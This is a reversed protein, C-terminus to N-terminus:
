ENFFFDDFFQDDTTNEDSISGIIKDINPNVVVDEIITKEELPQKQEEVKNEIVLQEEIASVPIVPIGNQKENKEEEELEAIKADIKKILDDVNFSDNDFMNMSKPSEMFDRRPPMFNPMNLNGGMGMPNVGMGMSNGGMPDDLVEFLKSRKKEKVFERLDFYHISTKTREPYTAKEYKPNNWNFEDVGKLKARFPPIRHKLIIADKFKLRQLEAVTILPRVEEKDKKKVKKDGALKSIEELSQLESSLLYITNGCNGKITEANEKGYVQNLQAFNQIILNFRIQRSRAATIMTTVDKLPPMNAFEDLIFNTRIALKGGNNQAVDILSEYCQKVFITALAHYTKKEDQIVLFVATKQKGIDMMDFDSHSLMESLNEAMAFINVKQRFVSIVSGKTENPANITGAANLYATNSAEKTTFYEKIYNSSGYKEEGTTLMLIISNLNIEDEKADQFLGQAMGSFFDAATNQWFPDDTKEEHLINMALDRLLENSKDSNGAKYLKYPLMLPNWANGKQPNRFNLVIVNYGRDRLLNANTEYIEGKPDTIIMSEGKKALINVLPNVMCYTKGSGTAGIILSHSEGDDVWMEDNKTHLPIGAAEYTKNSILVKKIGIAGMIDKDKAWTEYGDDKKSNTSLGIGKERDFFYSSVVAIIGILALVFFSLTYTIYEPSFAEAPNFGYFTGTKSFSSLNLVALAIIYLLFVCFLLFYIVDEPEATFKLKM